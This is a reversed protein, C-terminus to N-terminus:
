YDNHNEVKTIDFGKLKELVENLKFTQLSKPGLVPDNKIKDLLSISIDKIGNKDIWYTQYNNHKYYDKLTKKDIIFPLYNKELFSKNASSLDKEIFSKEKNELENNIINAFLYSNFLAFSVVVSKLKSM